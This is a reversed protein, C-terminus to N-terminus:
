NAGKPRSLARLSRIPDYETGRDSMKVLGSGGPYTDPDAVKMDAKRVKPAPLNRVGFGIVQGTGAIAKLDNWEKRSVDEKGAPLKFYLYGRQPAEYYNRDNAKALAFDGWLQIREPSSPGPEPVVKDLIAYVGIWDSFAGAPPGPILIAALVAALMLLRKM